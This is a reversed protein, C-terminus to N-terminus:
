TSNKIEGACRSRLRLAYTNIGCLSQSFNEARWVRPLSLLSTDNFVCIDLNMHVASILVDAYEYVGERDEV